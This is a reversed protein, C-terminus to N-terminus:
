IAPTEEEGVPESGTGISGWGITTHHRVQLPKENRLTDLIPLLEAEHFYLNLIGNTHQVNAPLPAGDKIIGLYGLYQTGDYLYIFGIQSGGGGSYGSVLLFRYSTVNESVLM